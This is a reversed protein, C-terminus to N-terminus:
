FAPLVRLYLTKLYATEPIAPHIPHDVAQQGQELLQVFRDNHRGAQQVQQLLNEQTMHHSCSSTILIGDKSLLQMAAQNLRNYALTGEKIDKRRKIFAPPDLLVVDFREREGRLERLSDFANARQTRVKDSVGNLAANSEVMELASASTDVCLVEQAGMAAAQVGWAGVYSCVDLVRGGKIYRAMRARNDAQDYFWGTKQGRQAQVQFKLDGEEVELLEPMEGSGLEIYQDLGEQVRASSDNRLLVARPKLVKEIAAVIEAKLLEMGATTIQVVVYEGYRDVVLGPLGDSEGFVLRYCPRAHLRERLSLAIKLRHVLLSASLPHEPDRSVVRACILSHPNVYGSGLWKGQHNVIDVPQGPEMGKLPTAKTDVENSYIWCHGFRLRRDQNKNLRLQATNMQHSGTHLYFVTRLPLLNSLM